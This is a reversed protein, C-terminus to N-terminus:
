VGAGHRGEGAAFRAAGSLADVALSTLGHRFENAMAAPEDLGYQELLSARDARLCTQPFAALREALERAAPLARGRPVVYNALGM